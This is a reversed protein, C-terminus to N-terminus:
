ADTVRSLSMRVFFICAVAQFHAVFWYIYFHAFLLVLATWFIRLEIARKLFARRHKYEEGPLEPCSFM